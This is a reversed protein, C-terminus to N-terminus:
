KVEKYWDMENFWLSLEDTSIRLNWTIGLVKLAISVGDSRLFWVSFELGQGSEQCSLFFLDQSDRFDKAWYAAAVLFFFGTFHQTDDPIAPCFAFYICFMPAVEDHQMDWATDTLM